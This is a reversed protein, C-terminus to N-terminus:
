TARHLHAPESRNNDEDAYAARCQEGGVGIREDLLQDSASNRHGSVDFDHERPRQEVVAQARGFLPPPNGGHALIALGPVAERPVRYHGGEYQFDTLRVVRGLGHAPGDIQIEHGIRREVAEAAVIEQLFLILVGAVAGFGLITRAGLKQSVLLEALM